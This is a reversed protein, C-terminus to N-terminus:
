PLDRNILTHQRSAAKAFFKPPSARIKKPMRQMATPDQPDYLRARVRVRAAPITATTQRM